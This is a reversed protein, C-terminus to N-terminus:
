DIGMLKVSIHFLIPSGILGAVAWIVTKLDDEFLNSLFMVICVIVYVISLFMLIRGFVFGIAEKTTIYGGVFKDDDQDEDSNSVSPTSTSVKNIPKLEDALDFSECGDNYHYIPESVSKLYCGGYEPKYGSDSIYVDIHDDDFSPLFSRGSGSYYKCYKCQKNCYGSKRDFIENYGM